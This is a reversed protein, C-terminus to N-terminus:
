RADAAPVIGLAAPSPGDPGGAPLPHLTVEEPVGWSRSVTQAVRTVDVAETLGAAEIFDVVAPLESRKSAMVDLHVELSITGLADRALKVPEYVIEVPTGDRAERYLREVHEPLLRMCGHSAYKGISGPANTGHLGYGPVSLQIWYKGLPNDPGAPVVRTVPEGRARMEAQISPPVRWIPDERRGVIRYRGPPTEWDTRGVGIPYRAKLTGKEFWYLTRVAVDIVIGDRQRRPVIHRDSVRLRMGPRLLDPNTLGNLSELLARNMTFRGTISWLNDGAAVVYEQEGGAILDYVPPKVRGRSSAAYAPLAFFLLALARTV